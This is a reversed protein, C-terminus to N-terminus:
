VCEAIVQDAHVVLMEIWNVWDDADKRAIAKLSYKRAKIKRELDAEHVIHNRRKAITRLKDIVEKPKPNGDMREAVRKWFDEVGVMKMASVVDDPQQFTFERHLQEQIAQKLPFGGRATTSKRQRDIAAKASLIPIHVKRWEKPIDDEKKSLMDICHHVVIDHMYRDLASVAAVVASRLLESLYEHTFATRAIGVKQRLILMSLQNEGDVRVIAEGQPWHMLTKFKSAWPSRVKRSRTDHLLDYLRLTHKARAIAPGFADIPKV